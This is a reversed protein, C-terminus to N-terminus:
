SHLDVKHNNSFDAGGLLEDTTLSQYITYYLELQRQM